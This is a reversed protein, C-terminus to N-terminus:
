LKVDLIVQRSECFFDMKNLNRNVTFNGFSSGFSKVLAGKVNANKKSARTHFEEIIKYNTSFSSADSKMTILSSSPVNNYKVCFLGKIM